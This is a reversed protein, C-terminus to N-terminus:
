AAALTVVVLANGDISVALAGKGHMAVSVGRSIGLPQVSSVSGGIADLRASTPGGWPNMSTGASAVRAASEDLALATVPQEHGTLRAVRRGTAVRYVTVAKEAGGAALLEGSADFSMAFTAMLPDEIRSTEVGRAADLLLIPSEPLGVALRRGDRSFALATPAAEGLVRAALRLSPLELIALGSEGATCAVGGRSASLIEVPTEFVKAETTKTGSALDWLAVTGSADGTVLTKGDPTLAGATTKTTVDLIRGPALSETDYARARGDFTGVLLVAGGSSLLVAGARAPLEVRRVADTV